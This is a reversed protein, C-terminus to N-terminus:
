NQIKTLKENKFIYAQKDWGAGGTILVEDNEIPSIGYAFNTDIDFIGLNKFEFNELNLVGLEIKDNMRRNELETTKPALILIEKDNIKAATSNYRYEFNFSGDKIIKRKNSDFINYGTGNQNRQIIVATDGNIPILPVKDGIGIKAEKIQVFKGGTMTFIQIFNIFIFIVLIGIFLVKPSNIFLFDFFENIKNLFKVKSFLRLILTIIINSLYFALFSVVFVFPVIFIVKIITFIPAWDLAKVTIYIAQGITILAQLGGLVGAYKLSASVSFKKHKISFLFAAIVSSIIITDTSFHLQHAFYLALIALLAPSSLIKEYIKLIKIGLAKIDIM